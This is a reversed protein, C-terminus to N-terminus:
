GLGFKALIFRLIKTILSINDALIVLGICAVLIDLHVFSDLYGWFNALPSIFDFRAVSFNLEPILGFLWDAIGILFDM